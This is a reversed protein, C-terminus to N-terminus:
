AELQIETWDTSSELQQLPRFFRDTKWFNIANGYMAALTTSTTLMFVTLYFKLCKVVWYGSGLVQVAMVAMVALVAMETRVVQKSIM